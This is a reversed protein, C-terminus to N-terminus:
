SHQMGTWPTENISALHRHVEHREILVVTMESYTLVIDQSKKSYITEYRVCWLYM